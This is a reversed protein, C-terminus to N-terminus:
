DNPRQSIAIYFVVLCSVLIALTMFIQVADLM